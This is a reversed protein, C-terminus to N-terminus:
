LILRVAGLSVLAWTITEFRSQDVLPMIFAETLLTSIMAVIALPVVESWDGTRMNGLYLQAPIKVFNVLLFLLARTGNLRRKPLNLQILYVAIIPGAVNAIVTLIGTLVGVVVCFINRKLDVVNYSQNLDADIVHAYPLIAAKSLRHRLKRSVFYVAALLLLSFGTSKRVIDENQHGLFIFSLVMGAVIPIGINVILLFDIDNRYAYLAGVDALMLVPAFIALIHRTYQSSSSSLVVAMGLAGFGPIGGKDIGILLSAIFQSLDVM